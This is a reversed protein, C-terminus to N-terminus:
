RYVMLLFMIIKSYLSDMFRCELDTDSPSGLVLKKHTQHYCISLNVREGLTLMIQNDEDSDVTFSSNYDNESIDSLNRLYIGDDSATVFGEEVYLAVTDGKFGPWYVDIISADSSFAGQGANDFNLYLDESGDESIESINRNETSRRRRRGSPTDPEEKGKDETKEPVKSGDEKDKMGKSKKDVTIKLKVQSDSFLFM